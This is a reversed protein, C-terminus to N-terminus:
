DSPKSPQLSLSPRSSSSPQRSPESSYHLGCAANPICSGNIEECCDLNSGCMHAVSNCLISCWPLEWTHCTISPQSSPLISPQSSPLISPKSSPQLSPKSSPQLSLSPQLSSSPKSSPQSSPLISPKSSPQLSLSPQLSSSPKSSPQLSSSGM